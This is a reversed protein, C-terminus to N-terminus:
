PHEQPPAVAPLKILFTTGEGPQSTFSIEGGIKQIIGHCISLGLGTGKGPLKTTFFPDFIKEQSETPIGIGNDAVSFAVGGDSNENLATHLTITGGKPLADIANNILNLLVQRLLSPESHIIPLEQAFDKVIQINSLTAERERMSAVDEVLANIDVDRIASDMKRAFSLLKHTIERCRGAQAVIERLSDQFEQMEPFQALTERKLLDQMWGAEEGIIALPNNVEHAIGASLQGIAALKQSQIMQDDVQHKDRDLQELRRQLIRITVVAAAIIALMGLAFIISFTKLKDTWLQRLEREEQQVVLLWDPKSGIRSVSFLIDVGQRARSSLVNDSDALADVVEQEVSRMVNGYMMSRTQLAGQPNVIFVEGTHGFRESDLIASFHFANVSARLVWTRGGSQRKVAIVFHPSRRYGMYVDSIWRGQDMVELFWPEKGYDRDMLSHPGVYVLHRGDAGLVGMDEFIHDFNRDVSSFATELVGPTQLQELTYMEAVLSVVRGLDSITLDMLAEYKQSLLRFYEDSRANAERDLDKLAYAFVLFGVLVAPLTSFLLVTLNFIRKKRILASNPM